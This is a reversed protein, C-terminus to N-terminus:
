LEHALRKRLLAVTVTIASFAVHLMLQVHWGVDAVRWAILPFEFVALWGATRWVQDVLKHRTGAFEADLASAAGSRRVISRM